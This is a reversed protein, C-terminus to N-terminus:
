WIVRWLDVFWEPMHEQVGYTLLPWGVFPIMLAGMMKLKFHKIHPHSM